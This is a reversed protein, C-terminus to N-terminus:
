DFVVNGPSSSALYAADDHNLRDSELVRLMAGYQKGAAAIYGLEQVNRRRANVTLGGGAAAIYALDIVTMRDDLSMPFGENNLPSLLPGAALM